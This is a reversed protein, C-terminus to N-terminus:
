IKEQSHAARKLLTEKSSLAVAQGSQPFFLLVFVLSNAKKEDTYLDSTGQSRLARRIKDSLFGVNWHGYDEFINLFDPALSPHPSTPSM